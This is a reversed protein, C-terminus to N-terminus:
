SAGGTIKAKKKIAEHEFPCVLEFENVDKGQVKKRTTYRTQIDKFSPSGELTTIFKFVDSMEQARGKVILKQGKEFSLNLIIIEPPLLKSVEYLYNIASTKTDLKSKVKKIRETKQTLDQADAAITKYRDSLLGLLAQQNRMKEGYIGCVVLILYMAASGLFIMDRSREKLTKRIQAEPLVFNIKKKVTDL